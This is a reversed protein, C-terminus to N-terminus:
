HETEAVAHAHAPVLVVAALQEIDERVEECRMVRDDRACRAEADQRALEHRDRGRQADSPRDLIADHEVLLEEDLQLLVRLRLEHVLVEQGDDVREMGPEVRASGSNTYPVSRSPSDFAPSSAPSGRFVALM